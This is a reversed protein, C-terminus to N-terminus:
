KESRWADVAEKNWRRPTIRAIPEVPFRGDEIMTFLTRRKINLYNSLEQLTFTM